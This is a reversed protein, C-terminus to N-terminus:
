VRSALITLGIDALTADQSSPAVMQLCDGAALSGGAGALTASTHSASTITVTGLATTTGSSIKNLTFVANATTLTTDYVVTGALSAPITLAMAAPANAVASAAPKGAFAFTIPVSQVEAPLNAYGLAIAVSSAGTARGYADFTVQPVHTADGYSAATVGSTTLAITGSSTITGGSLGTGATISTVTGGSGTASLTGGTSLALGSGIAIDSPTAAATGPNGVLTSAGRTALAITGSSTITGGSLGTGATISTVTGAGGATGNSAATVRGAADVTINSLTYSGPTVGSAPLRAAAVTGSSLNSANSAYAQTALLGLAVGNIYPAMNTGDYGFQFNATLPGLSPFSIGPAPVALSGTLTGGSLPLARVWTANERGYVTGDSPADVLLGAGGLFTVLLSLQMQRTHPTQGPQWTAFSDTPQPSIALPLQGINETLLLGSM